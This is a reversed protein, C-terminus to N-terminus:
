ELTAQAIGGNLQAIGGESEYVGYFMSSCDLWLALRHIEDDTLKVDYHGKEILPLLKAARAGFQGPRTRYDDDYNWFGWKRTINYYSAYWNNKFPERALSPAKDSNKAHCDVCRQDLVPQVLRPFSFPNSGDVEPKLRAPSKRLALPAVAATAPSHSPSAHCGQCTLHEGAHLATASRMSQVAFGREDLAQFFIERNAPVIFHASGDEEVPVTGLVHRVPVVSDEAGKIRVGTEHPPLGSPATMPLLQLVRLATVKTNEPWPLRSDYVNLISVTAKAAAPSSTLQPESPNYHTAAALQATTQPMLRPRLPIPSMCSIEPDRYLLEKNGFADVLYIGYDNPYQTEHKGVHDGPPMQVDYACLFYNESLPWATGFAEAGTQTEPFGVEPTLRKVPGMGDDDAAEPDVIILSGFCQGHHPAATAIYKPSNPIARVNVEMDPRNRRLSYNGHIPRPDRGDLTTLWPMHATCGHRDVYDWRTWVIRGDHAVSPDWENTEHISLCNIDGGDNAMDFLTYTPCTRGCRLYGGRRESIFAIRGNPLYCPSFDNWSGDTLQRLQSGDINVEFVHYARGEPWHGRTPDTHSRHRRDGTCEVYAFLIRRADYSLEPSLFSGGETDDGSLNGEGDFYLQYPTNPGGSLRQGALRGGEITATALVNRTTPHESFANSLVFLGGGPRAAMGYYQDCMHNFVARHRKIFVLDKFDLQPNAFAIERRLACLQEYLEFRAEIRDIPLDATKRRLLDLRQRLTAFKAPNSNRSLDDLLAASRRAVIDAPDRDDPVILASADFTQGSLSSIRDRDRLDNVLAAYQWELETQPKAAHGPINLTWINTRDAAGNIAVVVAGLLLIIVRM